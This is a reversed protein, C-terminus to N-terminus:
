GRVTVEIGLLTTSYSRSNKDFHVISYNRGEIIMRDKQELDRLTYTEANLIVKLDGIKIPGGAVLDSESYAYVRMADVLVPADFDTGNNLRVGVKEGYRTTFRDYM